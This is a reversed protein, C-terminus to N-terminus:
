SESYALAKELAQLGEAYSMKPHGQDLDPYHNEDNFEEQPSNGSNPEPFNELVMEIIEDGNLEVSEDFCWQRIDTETLEEAAPLFRMLGCLERFEETQSSAAEQESKEGDSTCTETLLAKWSRAITESRVDDWAEALWKITKLIDVNKVAELLDDGDELKRLLFKVFSRKYKRKLTELVHQDMPQVTATCNPPLYMVRIGGSVLEEAPPHVPANDLLLLAKEPLGQSELYDKVQPVFDTFYWDRFLGKTMWSSNQSGYKVPLDSNDVNRFARPKAAKGIVFLPMKHSGTANACALVSVREKNIKFGPASKRAKEVLTKNPLKRYNLGTEDANYLQEPRLEEEDVVRQLEQMFAPLLDEKSSLSEGCITLQRIGEKKKWRNLWGNSASFDPGDRFEQVGSSKGSSTSRESTTRKREYFFVMFICGQCLSRLEDHQQKWKCVTSRDVKYKAAVSLIPEGSQLLEVAEIKEEITICTRTRKM